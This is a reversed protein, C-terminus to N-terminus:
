KLSYKQSLSNVRKTLEAHRKLEEKTLFRKNDLVTALFARATGLTNQLYENNISGNQKTTSIQEAEVLYKEANDLRESQLKSVSCATLFILVLLTLLSKKTLQM